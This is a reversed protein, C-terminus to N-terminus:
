LRKRLTRTRHRRARQLHAFCGRRQRMRRHRLLVQLSDNSGDFTILEYAYRLRELQYKRLVEENYDEADGVDETQGKFLETPPGEREEKALRAKGFESPYVRVSVIKGRTVRAPGGKTKGDVKRSSAASTSALASATPSVLSSFIKYLHTAKVHDWDLNVVAIRRTRNEGGEDEEDEEEEAAVHECAHDQVYAAAQADLEAFHDEDLDVEPELDDLIHTRTKRGLTVVRGGSDSEEEDEDEDEERGQDEEDSSELLVEGRAYDPKKKGQEGEDGEDGEDRRDEGELRYFRKLNEQDHTSSM